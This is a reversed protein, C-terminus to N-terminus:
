MWESVYKQSGWVACSWRSTVYGVTEGNKYVEKVVLCNLSRM